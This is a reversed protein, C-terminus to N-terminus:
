GQIFPIETLAGDVYVKGRSEQTPLPTDAGGVYYYAVQKSPITLNNINVIMNKFSTTQKGYPQICILGAWDDDTTKIVTNDKFNLTCAPEGKIGIRVGGTLEFTNNNIGIIANKAAGYINIHNHTCSDEVFYNNSISSGNKLKTNLELTNYITGANSGFFCNTITLKTEKDGTTKFWYGKSTTSDPDKSLNYIRCNTITVEDANLVRVYGTETFDFGDIVVAKGAGDITIPQTIKTAM